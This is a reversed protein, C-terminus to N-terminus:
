EPLGEHVSGVFVTIGQEVNGPTVAAPTKANQCLVFQLVVGAVTGPSVESGPFDLPVAYEATQLWLVESKM